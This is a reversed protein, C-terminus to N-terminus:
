NALWHCLRFREVPTVGLRTLTLYLCNMAFRFRLFLVSERLQPWYRTSDLAQHFPSTALFRAHEGGPEADDTGGDDPDADDPAYHPDADGTSSRMGLDLGAALLGEARAATPTLLELWDRIVVAPQGHTIGPVPAQPSPISRAAGPGTPEGGGD